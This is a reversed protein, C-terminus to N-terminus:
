CSSFFWSLVVKKLKKRYRFGWFYGLYCFKWFKSVTKL